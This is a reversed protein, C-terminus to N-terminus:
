AAKPLGTTGSTYIYLATADIAPPEREASHLSDGPMTAIEEQLSSFEPSSGFVGCVLAATLRARISAVRPTLDASVILYEAAAINISHALVDGGLQSSILAVVVGVRTLGLWVALYEACNPMLLAVADGSRLDRGLAWRSYQNLRYGLQGYTMSAEPSILAPSANFEGALRDILTPLTIGREGITATKALARLWADRAFKADAEGAQMSITM